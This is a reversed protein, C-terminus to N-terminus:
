GLYGYQGFHVLGDVLASQFNMLLVKELFDDPIEELEWLGSANKVCNFRVTTYTETPEMNLAAERISQSILPMLLEMSEDGEEPIVSGLAALGVVNIYAAAVASDIIPSMDYHTILATITAKNGDISTSTINYSLTRVNDLLLAKISPSTIIDVLFGTAVDDDESPIDDFRSLVEMLSDQNMFEDLASEPKNFGFACGCLMILMALFLAVAVIQRKM